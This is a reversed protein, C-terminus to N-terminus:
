LPFLFPRKHQRPLHEVQAKILPLFKNMMLFSNSRIEINRTKQIM